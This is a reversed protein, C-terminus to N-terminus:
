KSSSDINKAAFMHFYVRNPPALRKELTFDGRLRVRVDGAGAIRSILEPPIPYLAVEFVKGQEGKTRNEGSGAGRLELPKGDIQLELSAGEPIHLWTEMNIYVARLFYRPAESAGGSAKMAGLSLMPYRPTMPLLPNGVMVCVQEGSVTDCELRYSVDAREEDPTLASRPRSAPGAASGGACGGALLLLLLLSTWRV